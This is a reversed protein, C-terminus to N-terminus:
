CKRMRAQQNSFALFLKRGETDLLALVKEELQSLEAMAANLEGKKEYIRECPKINGFYLDELLKKMQENRRLSSNKNFADWHSTIKGYGFLHVASFGTLVM